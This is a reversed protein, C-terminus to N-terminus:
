MFTSFKVLNLYFGENEHFEWMKECKANKSMKATVSEGLGDVPHFSPLFSPIVSVARVALPGPRAATTEWARVRACSSFRGTRLLPM